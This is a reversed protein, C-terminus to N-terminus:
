GVREVQLHKEFQTRYLHAYQGGHSLLEEHRGHEIIEGEELVLIVDSGIITSLRHAIVVSTRGLLLREMADQILAESESDLASTAEDLILIRPDRLIERAIALRQRQGGSLRVGREGVRTDFGEPLREIFETANAADAAARIQERTVKRQGCAINDAISRDFLFIDQPVFGVQRRYHRLELDRLDHGDVLIRGETPDHFRPILSALTSKGAGSHGVLAVRTHAPIDVDVHRLAPRDTGAYRFSVDEFTLRGVVRQRRGGGPPSAVEPATDLVQFIRDLSALSGQVQSNFGALQTVSSLLQQLYMFFAFLGGVTFDSTMILYVGGLIILVPGLTSLLTYGRSTLIQFADRRLNARVSDHLVRTYHLAELSETATVQVLAHGSLGQHMASSVDTWRALAGKNLRRLRPSVLWAFGVVAGVLVVGATAMRWEIYFLMGLYALGRLSQVFALVVSDAMVAGLNSVDDIQRSMLEGTERHQYYSRSLRQMHRFLRIRVGKLVKARFLAMCWGALLSIAIAALGLVVVVGTWAVINPSGGPQLAQDVIRRVLLPMLLAIPTSVVVQVVLVVFVLHLHPRMWPWFRKLLPWARQGDPETEGGAGSGRGRLLGLARMVQIM